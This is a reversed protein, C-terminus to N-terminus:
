LHSFMVITVIVVAKESWLLLLEHFQAFFLIEEWAVMVMVVVWGCFEYSWLLQCGRNSQIGQFLKIGDLRLVQCGSLLSEKLWHSWPEETVKSVTHKHSCHASVCSVNESWETILSKHWLCHNWHHSNCNSKLCHFVSQVQASLHQEWALSALQYLFILVPQSLIVQQVNQLWAESQVSAMMSWM